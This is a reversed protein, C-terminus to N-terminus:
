GLVDSDPVSRAARIEAVAEVVEPPLDAMADGVVQERAEFPPEDISVIHALHASVLALARPDLEALEHLVELTRASGRRESIIVLVEAALDVRGAWARRAMRDAPTPNSRRHPREWTKADTDAGGAGPALLEAVVTALAKPDYRVLRLIRPRDGRGRDRRWNNTYRLSVQRQDVAILLM